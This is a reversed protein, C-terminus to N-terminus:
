NLFRVARAMGDPGVLVEAEVSEAGGDDSAPIGLATIASRPLEVRVLDVDEDQPAGAANPLPIFAADQQDDAATLAVPSKVAGIPERPPRGGISLVGAALLVAAAAAWWGRLERAPPVCRSYRERYARVLRAELGPPASVHKMDTALLHLGALVPRSADYRAACAPCAALHADFDADPAPGANDNWYEECSM